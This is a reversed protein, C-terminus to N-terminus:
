APLRLGAVVISTTFSVTGTGKGGTVQTAPAAPAVTDKVVEITTAPSRNGAQDEQVIEITNNGENLDTGPIGSGTGPTWTVGGDKSYRWDSGDEVGVQVSGTGNIIIPDDVTGTGKGGTVQTAPAAPAVTDQGANRGSSHAASHDSSNKSGAVAAVGFAAALGGVISLTSVSGAVSAANAAMAVTQGAEASAAVGQTVETESAGLGAEASPAASMESASAEGAESAETAAQSAQQEESVLDQENLKRKRLSGAVKPMPPQAPLATSQLSTIQEPSLPKNM